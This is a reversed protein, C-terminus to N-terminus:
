GRRAAIAAEARALSESTIKHQHSFHEPTLITLALRFAEVAQALLAMGEGDRIRTGQEQLVNGLNNQTMAWDAPMATETRVSLAARFAAAAQNLLALGAEGEIRVALIRLVNGLNNQIGSWQTPTDVENYVTLAARFAKVAENQLAPGTEGVTQQSMIALATGLNNQTLAWQAPMAAQTRVSLAARYAAVAQELLSFGAKGPTREGQMRLASGLNNQTMAWEAPMASETRVTLAARYAVVAEALLGLGEDGGTREGQESLVIGVNNQVQATREDDGRAKTATELARWLRESAVLAPTQAFTKGFNYLRLAAEEVIDEGAALDFPMLMAAAQEWATDAAQWDGQGLLLGARINTYNARARADAEQREGIATEAQLLAAIAAADDDNALAQEAAAQFSRVRNDEVPTEELKELADQRSNILFVVQDVLEVGGQDPNNAIAKMVEARIRNLMEADGSNGLRSLIEAVARRVEEHFAADRARDEAQGDELRAVSQLTEIGLYYLLSQLYDNNALAAELVSQVIETAFSRANFGAVSPVGQAFRPDHASLSDVVHSAVTAALDPKRAFAALEERTPLSSVLHDAMAADAETLADRAAQDVDFRDAARLAAMRMSSALTEFDLSRGDWNEKVAAILKAGNVAGVIALPPVGLLACGLGVVPEIYKWGKAL